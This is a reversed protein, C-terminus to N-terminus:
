DWEYSGTLSMKIILGFKRVKIKCINQFTPSFFQSINFIEIKQLSFYLIAVKFIFYNINQLNKASHFM